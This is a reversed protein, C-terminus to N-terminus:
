PLAPMRGRHMLSQHYTCDVIASVAYLLPGASVAPGKGAAEAAAAIGRSGAVM